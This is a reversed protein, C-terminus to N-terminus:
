VMQKYDQTLVSASTLWDESPAPKIDSRNFRYAKKSLLIPALYLAPLAIFLLMISSLPYIFLHNSIQYFYINSLVENLPKFVVIFVVHFSFVELSYQGLYCIPKFTFWESKKSCVLIIISILALCNLLRVPGLVDRLFLNEFGSLDIHSRKIAFLTLCIALSLVLTVKSQMLQKAKGSCYAFGAFVGLFFLLQWSLLNFFGTNVDGIQTITDLSTLGKIVPLLYIAISCTVLQWKYGRKLYKIVMPVFLIFIMYMPLIDMQAPQYLLLASLAIAIFPKQSLLGYDNIWYENLGYGFLLAVLACLLIGTHNKYILWARKKVAENVFAEGKDNMKRTYVIGATLGSLFM